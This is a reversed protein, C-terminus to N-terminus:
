LIGSITYKPTSVVGTQTDINIVEATLIWDSNIGMWRTIQWFTSSSDTNLTVEIDPMRFGKEEAIQLAEFYSIPYKNDYNIVSDIEGEHSYYKWLGIYVHNGNTMQGEEKLQGNPYYNKHYDLKSLKNQFSEFHKVGSLYNNRIIHFHASDIYMNHMNPIISDLSKNHVTPIVQPDKETIKGTEKKEAPNTCASVLCFSILVLTKM